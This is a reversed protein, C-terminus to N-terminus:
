FIFIRLIKLIKDSRGQWFNSQRHVELANLVKLKSIDQSSVTERPCETSLNLMSWIYVLKLNKIVKHQTCICMCQTLLLIMIIYKWMNRTHLCTRGKCHFAKWCYDCVVFVQFHSFLLLLSFKFLTIVFDFFDLLWSFVLFLATRFPVAYPLLSCTYKKAGAWLFQICGIKSSDYHWRKPAIQLFWDDM